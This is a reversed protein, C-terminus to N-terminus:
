PAPVCAPEGSGAHWCEPEGCSSLLFRSTPHTAIWLDPGTAACSGLVDSWPEVAILVGDEVRYYETAGDSSTGYEIM